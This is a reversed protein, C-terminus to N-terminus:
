AGEPVKWDAAAAKILMNRGAAGAKRLPEYFGRVSASGVTIQAGLIPSKYADAAQAQLVKVQKWDAELEDAIIMAHATLVGQGMESNGIHIFVKDDPTITFWANPNFGPIEGPKKDSANLLKYGFPSVSIALTLGTLALSGKLFGRRTISTNTM